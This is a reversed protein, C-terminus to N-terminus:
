LARLTARLYGSTPYNGNVDIDRWETLVWGQTGQYVVFRAIGAVTDVGSGDAPDLTIMYQGEFVAPNSSTDEYEFRLESDGFQVTRAAPYEEKVRTLWGLEVTKTWDAFADSGLTLEDETRPYFRFEPDLSRDYNSNKPSEFGSELNLFVDRATNPIIWTDQEDTDPPEADRPDFVCGQALLLLVLAAALSGRKM